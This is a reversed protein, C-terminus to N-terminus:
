RSNQHRTYTIDMIMIIMMLITRIIFNNKDNDNGENDNSNFDDKNNNNHNRDKKNICNSNHKNNDIDKSDNVDFIIIVILSVMIIIMKKM